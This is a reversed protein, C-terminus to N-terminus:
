KGEKSAMFRQRIEGKPDLYKEMTGGVIADRGVEKAIYARYDARNLVANPEDGNHFRAFGLSGTVDGEYRSPEGEKKIEKFVLDPRQRKLEEKAEDSGARVAELLREKLTQMYEEELGPMLAVFEDGGMRAFVDTDRLVERVHASTKQLYLDGIDHGYTDNIAKFHDLDLKVVYLPYKEVGERELIRTQLELAEDFARRNPLGTLVDIRANKEEQAVLGSIEKVNSLLEGLEGASVVEGSAAKHMMEELQKAMDALRESASKEKEVAEIHVEAEPVVSTETETEAEAVAVRPRPPQEGLM